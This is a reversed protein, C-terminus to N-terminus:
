PPTVEGTLAARMTRDLLALTEPSADAATIEVAGIKFTIKPAARRSQRWSAFTALLTGISVLQTLTVDIVELAGMTEANTSGPRDLRVTGALTNRNLWNYLSGLALSDLGDETGLIVNVARM